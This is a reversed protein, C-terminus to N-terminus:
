ETKKFFSASVQKSTVLNDLSVLQFVNGELVKIQDEAACLQKQCNQLLETGQRYYKLSEDLSFHGSELQQIL